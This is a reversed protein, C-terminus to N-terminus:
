VPTADQISPIHHNYARSPSLGNPISFVLKYQLLLTQLEVPRDVPFELDVISSNQTLVTSSNMVSTDVQAKLQLTFRKDIAKTSCLRHLQHLSTFDSRFRQIGRLTVM